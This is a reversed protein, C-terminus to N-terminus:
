FEERIFDSRHLCFMSLVKENDACSVMDVFILIPNRGYGKSKYINVIDLICKNLNEDTIGKFNIDSEIGYRNMRCSPIVCYPLDKQLRLVKIDNDFMLKDCLTIFPPAKKPKENSYADILVFFSGTKEVTWVNPNIFEFYYYTKSLKIFRNKTDDIWQAIENVRDDFENTSFKIKKTDFVKYFIDDTAKSDELEFENIEEVRKKVEAIKEELQPKSKCVDLYKYKIRKSGEGWYDVITFCLCNNCDHNMSKMGHYKIIIDYTEEFPHDDIEEQNFEWDELDEVNSKHRIRVNGKRRVYDCFSFFRCFSM